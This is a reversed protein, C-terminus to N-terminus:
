VSGAILLYTLTSFMAFIAVTIGSTLELAKKVKINNIRKLDDIAIGLVIAGAFILPSVYRINM